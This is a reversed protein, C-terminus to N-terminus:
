ELLGPTDLEADTQVTVTKNYNISTAPDRIEVSDTVLVTICGSTLLALGAVLGLLVRPMGLSEKM